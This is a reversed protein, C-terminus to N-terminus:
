NLIVNDFRIGCRASSSIVGGSSIERLGSVGYGSQWPRRLRCASYDHANLPSASEELEVDPDSPPQSAWPLVIVVLRM